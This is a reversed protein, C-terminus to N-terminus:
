FSRELTEETLISAKACGLIDVVTTFFLIIQEGLSSITFAGKTSRVCFLLIWAKFKMKKLVSADRNVHNVPLLDTRNVLLFTRNLEGIGKYRLFWTNMMYYGEQKRKSM